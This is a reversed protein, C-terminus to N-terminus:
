GIFEYRDWYRARLEFPGSGKFRKVRITVRRRSGRAACASTDLRDRAHPARTREDYYGPTRLRLDYDAGAPGDLALQLRTDEPLDLTFSQTGNARSLAGSFTRVSPQESLRHVADFEIHSFARTDPKLLRSYDWRDSPLHYRAYAEAFGEGPNEWYNAGQDGPFLRGSDTRFCVSESSAWSQPGWNVAPGLSNRRHAALHHGYEHLIIEEVGVGAAQIDGYAVVMEDWGYCALAGEGCVDAMESERVIQVTLQSMEDAHLASELLLAYSQARGISALTKGISPSLKFRIAHGDPAAWTFIPMASARANGPKYVTDRFPAAQVPAVVAVLVALASVLPIRIM